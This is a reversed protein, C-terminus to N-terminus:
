LKRSGCPSFSTQVTHFSILIFDTPQLKCGNLTARRKTLCIGQVALSNQSVGTTDKKVLLSIQQSCSPPFHMGAYNRRRGRNNLTEGIEEPHKGQANTERPSQSQISKGMIASDPHEEHTQGSAGTRIRARGQVLRREVAEYRRAQVKSEKRAFKLSRCNRVPSSRVTGEGWVRLSQNM